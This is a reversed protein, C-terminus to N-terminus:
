FYKLLDKSEKLFANPSFSKIVEKKDYGYEFLYYDCGSNISFMADYRSDGVYSIEEISLNNEKLFIEMAMPSPKREVEKKWGAIYFFREGFYHKVINKTDIDPKNSIVALRYGKALLQELKFIIM